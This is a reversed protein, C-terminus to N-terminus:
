LKYHAIRAPFSYTCIRKKRTYYATKFIRSSAEAREHHARKECEHHPGSTLNQICFLWAKPLVSYVNINSHEMRM